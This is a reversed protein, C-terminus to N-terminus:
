KAILRNEELFENTKNIGHNYLEILKKKDKCFPSIEINSNIMYFNPKKLYKRLKFYESPINLKKIVRPDKIKMALFLTWLANAFLYKPSLYNRVPMNFIFIVKKNTRSLVRDLSSDIIKSLVQGDAYQRGNIKVVKPYFPMIASSAHLKKFINTKGSLYKEQMGKIDFVRIYFKIKSKSIKSIDLKKKNKEIEVLYDIDIMKPIRERSCVFHSSLKRLFIFKNDKIFNKGILDKYYISAGLSTNEALFYAANHAGCSIGYISHIRPYLNAKQLASVVGAGFVGNMTGGFFVLIIDRKM